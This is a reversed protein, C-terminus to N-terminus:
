GLAGQFLSNGITNPNLLPTIRGGFSEIMGFSFAGNNSYTSENNYCNKIQDLSLSGGILRVLCMSGVFKKTNTSDGGIYVDNADQRINGGNNVTYTLSKNVTDLYLKYRGSGALAGDYVIAWQKDVGLPISYLGSYCQTQQMSTNYSSIFTYGDFAPNAYCRIDFDLFVKYLYRGTPNTAYFHPINMWSLYTFNGGTIDCDGVNVTDNGDYYYGKGVKCDVSDLSGTEIGNHAGLSDNLSKNMTWIGFSNYNGAYINSWVNSGSGPVNVSAGGVQIYFVTDTVDSISPFKVFIYLVGASKDIEVKEIPYQTGDEATVVLDLGNNGHLSNILDGLGYASIVYPVNVDAVEVSTALLTGQIYNTSDGVQVPPM